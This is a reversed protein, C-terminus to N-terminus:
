AGSLRVTQVKSFCSLSGEVSRTCLSYLIKRTLM